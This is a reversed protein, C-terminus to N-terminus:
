DHQVCRRAEEVLVLHDVLWSSITRCRALLYLALEATDCKEVVAVMGQFRGLALPIPAADELL